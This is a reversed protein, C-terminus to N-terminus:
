FKRVRLRLSARAASGGHRLPGEGIVQQGVVDGAGLISQAADGVGEVHEPGIRLDTARSAFRQAFPHYALTRASVDGKM